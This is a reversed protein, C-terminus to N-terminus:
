ISEFNEEFKNKMEKLKDLEEEDDSDIMDIGIDEITEETVELDNVKVTEPMEGMKILKKVERPQYLYIIDCKDDEFDRLSVIVIDGNKIWIRKRMTGRINCLRIKGDFCQGELRCNGLIKTIQCYEQNEDKLILKREVEEVSNKGKKGKKGGKKNIVM